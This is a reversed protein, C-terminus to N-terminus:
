KEEIPRYVWGQNVPWWDHTAVAIKLRDQWEVSMAQIRYISLFPLGAPTEGLLGSPVGGLLKSNPCKRFKGGELELCGEANCEKLLSQGCHLCSQDSHTSHIM